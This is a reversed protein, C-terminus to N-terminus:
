LLKKGFVFTKIDERGLESEINSKFLCEYNRLAFFTILGSETFYHYHEDKRFHKSRLVHAKDNFIPISILINRGLCKEVALEIDDIHEFSDFFTVLDANYAGQKYLDVYKDQGKLWDVAKPCVDYGLGDVARVFQGSGIGIDIITGSSFMNAIRVREYNLKDGFETREYGVYKDFYSDNYVGENKVPYYGYGFEESWQLEDPPLHREFIFREFRERVVDMPIEKNCGHHSDICHCFPQPYIFDSHLPRIRPDIICQPHVSGGYITFVSKDLYVALPLLFNPYTLVSDAISFLGILEDISLKGHLVTDCLPLWEGELEPEGLRDGLTYDQLSVIHFGYNKAMKLCEIMYATKPTRSECDWDHRYSPMKVILIPKGTDVLKLGFERQAESVPLRTDYVQKPFGRAFSKSLTRYDKLDDSSYTPRIFEAVAPKEGWGKGDDVCRNAFDYLFNGPKIPTVATDLYLEPYPTQVFVNYYETASLALPRVFLNDGFGYFSEIVLNKKV